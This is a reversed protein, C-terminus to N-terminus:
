FVKKHTVFLNAIKRSVLSVCPAKWQFLFELKLKCVTGNAFWFFLIKPFKQFLYCARSSFRFTQLNIVPFERTNSKAGSNESNKPQFNRYWKDIQRFFELPNKFNRTSHFTGMSKWTHIPIAYVTGKVYWCTCWSSSSNFFWRLMSTILVHSTM